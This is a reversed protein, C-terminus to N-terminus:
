DITWLAALQDRQLSWNVRVVEGEVSSSFSKLVPSWQARAKEDRAALALAMDNIGNLVALLQETDSAECHAKLELVFRGGTVPTVTVYAVDAPELARAILQVNIWHAPPNEMAVDLLHPDIQAWAIAGNSLAERAASSDVPRVVPRRMLVDTTALIVGNDAMSVAVPGHDLEVRCPAEAIPQPCEVGQRTLAAEVLASGFRGGAALYLEQGAVGLAIAELAGSSIGLSLPVSLQAEGTAVVAAPVDVYLQVAADPPLIELLERVYDRPWFRAALFAVCGLVFGALLFAQWRPAQATGAM